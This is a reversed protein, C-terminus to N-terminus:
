ALPLARALFHGGADEYEDLRWGSTELAPRLNHEALLDGPDLARGHRAAREARGSPHFLLLVGDAATVRAWERLAAYPDPLHDLVGASFIGHVSAGALPLRTCDAAVLYGHRTRGHRAASALMAPTLDVGLVHGRPGVQTRLAPMARGTGCGLDVARGGPELRLRAVAAEYAPTQHAFREEWADARRTFFARTATHEARATVLTAFRGLLHESWPDLAPGPSAPLFRIGWAGAGIRFAQEPYGDCSALVVADAPLELPDRAPRLSPSPRAGGAFLPDCEAAPTLELAPLGAAPGSGAGAAARTARALLRTGTGLALVPVEAALAARVLRAGGEAGGEAGGDAGASRSGGLLILGEIGGLDASPGAGDALPVTRSALGAGALVRIVATPTEGAAHHMVVVTM